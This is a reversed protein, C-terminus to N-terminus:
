QAGQVLHPAEQPTGGNGGLRGVIGGRGQLSRSKERKEKQQRPASRGFGGSPRHSRCHTGDRLTRGDGGIPRCLTDYAGHDTTPPRM